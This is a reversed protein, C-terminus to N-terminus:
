MKLTPITMACVWLVILLFAFIFKLPGLNGNNREKRLKIITNQDTQGASLAAQIKKSNEIIELNLDTVKQILLKNAEHSEKLHSYLKEYEIRFNDLTNDNILESIVNQFTRELSDFLKEEEEISQQSFGKSEM